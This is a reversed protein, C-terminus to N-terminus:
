LCYGAVFSTTTLFLRHSPAKPGALNARALLKRTVAAHMLVMPAASPLMMAIMMLWWMSFMLLAYGPTWAMTEHCSMSATSPVSPELGMQIPVLAAMEHPYMGMGAGALLYLWCAAIVTVLVLTVVARDRSLVAELVDTSNVPSRKMKTLFGTM